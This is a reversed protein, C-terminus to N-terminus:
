IRVLIADVESRLQRTVEWTEKVFSDTIAPSHAHGYDAIIRAGRNDDKEKSVQVDKAIHEQQEALMRLMDLLSKGALEKQLIAREHEWRPNDTPKVLVDRLGNATNDALLKELQKKLGLLAYYQIYFTYTEIASLRAPELLYNKGLGKIDSETYVKKPDRIAALRERAEIMGDVIEPRFVEFDFRTRRAKNRKMYKGENRKVMYIQDSLVWAPMIENYAPSIGEIRSAPTNILSFPFEVKQPLASVGTAIISYPARTFNSPFKINVGLGFFTGEGPWIEQDPAKSTHNSGVNAGYGVNGKGEPWLAAILLSQHHFGVFPGCLCATVEGEAIGSNPGLISQTVKGHREVHSHECLVSSDVIGMSAVESGWQVISKVVWAGDLIEAKEEKSSLLTSDSVKNANDIIAHAGVFTNIVKGTNSIRAGEEIIGRPSTAKEVYAKVFEEYEKLLQKNYRSTAVQTALPITLEAFTLVERGGTEIAISMEVGNGFASDGSCSVTQTNLVMARPGVVYNSLVGVNYILADDGIVSNVIVSNYVGPTLEVGKDVPLTENAFKGLFVEGFFKTAFAHRPSFGEAVRVKTWDPSWCGNSELQAQLGKVETIARGPLRAEKVRKVAQLLESSELISEVETLFKPM